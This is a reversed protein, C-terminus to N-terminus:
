INNFSTIILKSTSLDNTSLIMILLKYLAAITVFYPVYQWNIRSAWINSFGSFVWFSLMRIAEAPVLILMKSEVTGHFLLVESFCVSAQPLSVILLIELMIHCWLLCDLCSLVWDLFSICLLNYVLYLSFYTSSSCLSCNGPSCSSVLLIFHM